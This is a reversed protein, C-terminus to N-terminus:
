SFTNTQFNFILNKNKEPKILMWPIYNGFPHCINNGESFGCRGWGLNLRLLSTGTTFLSLLLWEGGNNLENTSIKSGTVCVGQHPAYRVNLAATTTKM